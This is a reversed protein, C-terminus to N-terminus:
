CRNGSAIRGCTCRYGGQTRALCPPDIWQWAPPRVELLPLYHTRDFYLAKSVIAFDSSHEIRRRDLFGKAFEFEVRVSPTRQSLYEARVDGM